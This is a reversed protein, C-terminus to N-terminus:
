ISWMEPNTFGIKRTIPVSAEKIRMEHIMHAVSYADAKKFNKM